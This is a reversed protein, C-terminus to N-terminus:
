SNLLGNGQFRQLLFDIALRARVPLYHRNAYVIWTTGRNHWYNNLVTHLEGNQLDDGFSTKPLYTIGLGAKCAAIATRVNNAKVKGKVPVEIVDNNHLFSWRHYTTTICSHTALAQPTAPNGHKELYAPSAAAVYCHEVLKRAVLGSDPLNGFRVAFDFNDEVFNVTRTNYDLELNLNPHQAVFELLVPVVKTEAFEGAATVRLVGNLEIQEATIVENAQDLGNVLDVCREYYIVGANTLKVQRTTRAVLAVGLRAELSAVQRSVHSTSVGLQRAAATFGQTEAVAIFEIIGDFM